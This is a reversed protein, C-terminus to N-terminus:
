NPSRATPGANAHPLCLVDEYVGLLSKLIGARSLRRQFAERAGAALSLREDTNGVLRTIADALQAENGIDVFIASIGDEFFEPVAGVRTVIIAQGAAAAELVVLPFNEFHSPLVFISTERFLDLKASGHVSGQLRVVSTLGLNMVQLSVQDRIGPEREPGVIDLMFDRTEKAVVACAAVLEFVGKDRGMTGLSLLRNGPRWFPMSIAADEFNSAIPNNVVFLKERAIGIHQEILERWAESLVIFGDLKALQKSAFHRRMRSLQNWHDIFGGSHLHGVTRAGCIRALGLMLFGKEMATGSSIAYHAIQPRYQLLKASWIFLHKLLYYLNWLNLKSQRTGGYRRNCGSCVFTFRDKLGDVFARNVASVSEAPDECMPGILIVPTEQSM